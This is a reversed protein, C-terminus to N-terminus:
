HAALTPVFVIVQTTLGPMEDPKVRDSETSNVDVNLGGTM